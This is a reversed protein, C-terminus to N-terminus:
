TLEEQTADRQLRKFLQLQEQPTLTMQVKERTLTMTGAHSMTIKLAKEMSEKPAVLKQYSPGGKSNAATKAEPQHRPAPILSQLGMQTIRYGKTSKKILERATMSRLAAACTKEDTELTSHQCLEKLDIGPQHHILRLIEIYLDLTDLSDESVENRETKKSSTAM